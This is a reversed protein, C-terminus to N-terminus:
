RETRGMMCERLASKLRAVVEPPTEHGSTNRYLEISRKLSLLCSSCTPCNGIHEELDRKAEGNLEGDLYDSLMAFYIRCKRKM